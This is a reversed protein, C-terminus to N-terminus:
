PTFGGAGGFSYSSGKLCQLFFHIQVFKSRAFFTFGVLLDAAFIAPLHWMQM